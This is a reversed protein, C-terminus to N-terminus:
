SALQPPPLEPPCIFCSLVELSHPPLGMLVLPMILVMFLAVENGSREGQGSSTVEDQQLFIIGVESGDLDHAAEGIEGGHSHTEEHPHPHGIPVGGPYVQNHRPQREAIHLDTIPGMWVSLLTITGLGIFLTHFQSVLARALSSPGVKMCDTYIKSDLM